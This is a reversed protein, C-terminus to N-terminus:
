PAGFRATPAASVAEAAAGQWALTADGAADMGATVSPLGAVRGLAIAAVRQGPGFRGGRRRRFAVVRVTTRHRTAHVGAVAVVLDGTPAVAVSLGGTLTLVRGLTVPAAFTGGPDRVAVGLLEHRHRVVLEAVAAAGGPAAAVEPCAPTSGGIRAAGAPQVGTATARLLEVGGPVWRALGGPEGTARLCEAVGPVPHFPLEGFPDAAAPAAAALVAAAITLVAFRRM